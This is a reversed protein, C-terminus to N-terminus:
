IICLSATKDSIYLQSFICCLALIWSPNLTVLRQKQKSFIHAEPFSRGCTTLSCPSQPSRGEAPPTGATEEDAPMGVWTDRLWTFDQLGGPAPSVQSCRYHILLNANSPLFQNYYCSLSLQPRCFRMKIFSPLQQLKQYAGMRHWTYIQSRPWSIKLLENLVSFSFVHLVTLYFRGLNHPGSYHWEFKNDLREEAEKLTFSTLRSSVIRPLLPLYFRWRRLTYLFTFQEYM